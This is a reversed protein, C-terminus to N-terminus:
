KYPNYLDTNESVFRNHYPIDTYLALLAMLPKANIDLDPEDCVGDGYDVYKRDYIKDLALRCEAELNVGFKFVMDVFENVHRNYSITTYPLYETIVRPILYQTIESEMCLTNLDSGNFDPSWEHGYVSRSIGFVSLIRMFKTQGYGWWMALSSMESFKSETSRRCEIELLEDISAVIGKFAHSSKYFDLWTVVANLGGGPMSSLGRDSIISVFYESALILGNMAAKLNKKVLSAMGEFQYSHAYVLDNESGVIYADCLFDLFDEPLLDNPSQEAVRLFSEMFEERTVTGLAMLLFWCIATHEVSHSNWGQLILTTSEVTTESGARAIIAEIKQSEDEEEGDLTWKANYHGLWSFEDDVSIIYKQMERKLILNFASFEYPTTLDRSIELKNREAVEIGGPIKALGQTAIHWLSDESYSQPTLKAIHESLFLRTGKEARGYLDSRTTIIFKKDPTACGLLGVLEHSLATPREHTTTGWPDSIFFLIPGSESLLNKISSVSDREHFVSFPPDYKQFLECLHEAFFTKGVGPPGSILLVNDGMLQRTIQAAQIPPYYIRTSAASSSGGQNSIIKNLEELTFLPQTVGLLRDRFNDVLASICSEIKLHPVKAFSALLKEIRYGVLERSLGQLISVRGKLVPAQYRQEPALFDLSIEVHSAEDKLDDQLLYLLKSEVWANTVFYYATDKQKLLLQLARARPKPGRPSIKSDIGDGVIKKFEGEGWLGREKSKCQILLKEITKESCRLDKGRDVLHVEVDETSEPEIYLVESSKRKLMLELAIWISVEIQYEYGDYGPAGKAAKSM